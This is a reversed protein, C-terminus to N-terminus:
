RGAQVSRLLGDLREANVGLDSRGYRLRAYLKIIDGDQEVTTYDPFGIWKSRTVYTLRKEDLSGAILGTRPLKLMTEHIKTLMGPGAGIVRMASGPGDADQSGEVPVHWRAGDDPAFRVWLLGAVIVGIVLAFIM